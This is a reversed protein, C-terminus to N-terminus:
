DSRLIIVEGGSLLPSIADGDGNSVIPRRLNMGLVAWEEVIVRGMYYVWGEVSGSVVV